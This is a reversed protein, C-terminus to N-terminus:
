EVNGCKRLWLSGGGGLQPFRPFVASTENFRRTSMLYCSFVVEFTMNYQLFARVLYQENWSRCEELVWRKPYDDPLFIDHVHIYVGAKLRPLIEFFLYNVDSGTKSVHSSDIFLIDGSQLKDFLEVPATQVTTRVLASIGEVGDILFQRPFPEICTFQIQQDRYKTNLEAIILSSYGSGVEVVHKPKLHRVMCFLVDADLCPFQDNNYYYRNSNAEAQTNFDLDNALPRFQELLKLQEAERYDIGPSNSPPPDPWIAAERVKLDSPDCLPSYFHGIEVFTRQPDSNLASAMLFDIYLRDSDSFGQM